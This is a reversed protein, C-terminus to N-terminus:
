AAPAQRALRLFSYVSFIACRILYFRIPGQQYKHQWLLFDSLVKLLDITDVMVEGNLDM